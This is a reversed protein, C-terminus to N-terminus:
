AEWPLLGSEAYRIIGKVNVPDSFAALNAAVALPRAAQVADQISLLYKKYQTIATKTLPRLRLLHRRLLGDSQPEYADVLGISHAYEVSFRQTMLTLYHAKQLGVRRILFPLVCAPFVGFLLESLSFSASGDALVIDSAAVFGLGGANAKGRVHSITIYPGTALRLWLNYLADPKDVGQGPTESTGMKSFDLGTCFIDPLGELVVISADAECADLVTGLEAVLEANISNNSQPRNLQIFWVSEQRRVALTHLM